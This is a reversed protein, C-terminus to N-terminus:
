KKKFQEFWLKEDLLDGAGLYMKCEQIIMLVEEESYMREAQWKAGKIFTNRERTPTIQQSSGFPTKTNRNPVLRLSAEEITEQKPEETPILHLNKM